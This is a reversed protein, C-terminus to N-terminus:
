LLPPPRRYQQRFLVPGPEVAVERLLSTECFQHLTNYFTALSVSQGDSGAEARLQDATVHRDGQALLLQASGIRQRTPRLDAKRLQEIVVSYPRTM